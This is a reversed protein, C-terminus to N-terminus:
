SALTFEDPLPCEFMYDKGKFSFKLQSAHLLQRLATRAYPHGYVNQAYTKDGIIPCNIALLHVRVQHTRGTKPFCTILATGHALIKEVKYATEATKQQPYIKNNTVAFYANKRSTDKIIPFKIVGEKQKPAYYCLAKYTKEIKHEKFLHEFAKQAETNKAIIFLGSTEKDLRHVLFMKELLYKKPNYKNLAYLITNKDTNLTAQVPIGAPKNLIIFDDNEFIINEKQLLQSQKQEDDWFLEIVDNASVLFKAVSIRKKNLYAGGNDIITKIKKRSLESFLKTCAVDFRANHNYKNVVSKKSKLM